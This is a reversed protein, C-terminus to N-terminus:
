LFCCFIMFVQLVWICVCQVAFFVLFICLFLEFFFSGSPDEFSDLVYLQSNTVQTAFLCAPRGWLGMVRLDMNVFLKVFMCIWLSVFDMNVFCLSVSVGLEANLGNKEKEVASRERDREREGALVVILSWPVAIQKKM